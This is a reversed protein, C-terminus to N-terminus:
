PFCKVFHKVDNEFNLLGFHSLFLRATQFDHCVPPPTCEEPVVASQIVALNSEVAMQRGMLQALTNTEDNIIEDASIM